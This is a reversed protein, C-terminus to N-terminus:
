KEASLQLKGDLLRIIKKSTNAIANDHTVLIVTTNYKENVTKLLNVVAKSSAEDLNGTPEDCLMVKPHNILARAIATRQQQGGSMERPLHTLREELELTHIIDSFYDKEVKRGDLKLPLLINDEATMDPILNFTQFIVAIETRRIASLEKDNLKYISQNNFIVDGSDPPLLGGLMHLLTTKGSGSKGTITVFEGEDFDIDIGNVAYVVAESKGYKKVLGEAKLM